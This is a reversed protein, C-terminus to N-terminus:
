RFGLVHRFLGKLFVPKFNVEETQPESQTQDVGNITPTAVQSEDQEANEDEEDTRGFPGFARGSSSSFGTSPRRHRGITGGSFLAAGTSSRREHRTARSQPDLITAARRHGIPQSHSQAIPSPPPIESATVTVDAGNGNTNGNVNASSNETREGGEGAGQAAAAKEEDM